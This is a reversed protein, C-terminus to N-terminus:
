YDGLKSLQARTAANACTDDLMARTGWETKTPEMFVGSLKIKM